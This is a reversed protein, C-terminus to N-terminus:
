NIKLITNLINYLILINNFNIKEWDQFDILKTM